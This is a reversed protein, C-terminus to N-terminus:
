GEKVLIHKCKEKSKERNLIETLVETLTKRGIDTPYNTITAKGYHRVITYKKVEKQTAM